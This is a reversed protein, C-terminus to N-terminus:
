PIDDSSFVQVCMLGGDARYAIGIGVCVNDPAVISVKHEESNMLDQEGTRVMAMPDAQAYPYSCNERINISNIGALKARQWPNRGEPDTHGHFNRKAMDDAYNRAMRGLNSSKKLVGSLGNKARDGNVLLLMYNEMENQSARRTQTAAAAQNKPGSASWEQSGKVDATAISYRRGDYRFFEVTKQYDRYEELASNLRAPDPTLMKNVTYIVDLRRLGSKEANSGPVMYTICTGAYNLPGIKLRHPVGYVGLRKVPQQPVSARTATKAQAFCPPAVWPALVIALAIALIPKALM